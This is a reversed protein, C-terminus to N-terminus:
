KRNLQVVVVVRTVYNVDPSSTKKWSNKRMAEWEHMVHTVLTEKGSFNGSFFVYVKAYKQTAKIFIVPDWDFFTWLAHFFVSFSTSPFQILWAIILTDLLIFSFYWLVFIGILGPCLFNLMITPFETFLRMKQFVSFFSSKRSFAM